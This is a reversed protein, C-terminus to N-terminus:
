MYYYLHNWIQIHEGFMVSISLNIDNAQSHKGHCLLAGCVNATNRYDPPHKMRDDSKLVSYGLQWIIWVQAVGFNFLTTM